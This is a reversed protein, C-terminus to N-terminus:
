LNNNINFRQIRNKYGGSVYLNGHQDFALGNPRLGISGIKQARSGVIIDGTIAEKTWRMVRDNWYDAVYITGLQDVIVGEPGALQDLGSGEGYPIMSQWSSTRRDLSSFRFIHKNYNDQFTSRRGFFDHDKSSRWLGTLCRFSRGFGAAIIGYKADKIWKMVRSNGTDSVYVSEDQDVFLYKPTRLQSSRNGRGNGGAVITGHTEGMRYRHVQNKEINTAYISGNAGMALGRCEIEPIIIEGEPSKPGSKERRWRVVRKNGYDCIILYNNEEDVIVDTPENLQDNESGKGKGGAVVKGIQEGYKWEIIRHNM